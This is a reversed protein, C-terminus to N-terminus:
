ATPLTLSYYDISQTAASTLSTSTLNLDAGSTAVTGQVRAETTSSAGTDGAAVLRYFTATGTAVNVGSWVEGSNKVITGGSATSAFTIGTGTSNVSVTCLLTASGISADADAPVTGAYIKLFGLNFVTKLPNTDLMQNRLGTSTKIAM